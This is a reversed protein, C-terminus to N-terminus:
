SAKSADPLKTSKGDEYAAKREQAIEEFGAEAYEKALKDYLADFEEPKCMTLEDRFEKYMEMLSGSYDVESEIVVSFLADNIAYGEEALALRDEYFKKVEENFNQPLDQPLNNRVIDDVEGANRSEITVCWYDKSNNFGQTYEGSYESVSVPLGDKMNYNEGEVGWQMQFLVDEQTMWEMYMWAAKIQDESAFSSFGIIMGFPNDARWAPTTIDTVEKNVPAIALKADPNAEYFATLFDINSSIYGGFQYSKGNVFNAKATENDTIYYEPNVIGANFKENERKLLAKNAAHGLAPINVDGYMAWDTEDLPFERYGYNQDSGRGTVMEGGAPYEAIGAEKIKAMADMYEEHIVPVHDYGVKELWDMRVFNQFTFASNYFPRLALAFYTEDNMITYPLQGNEEMRAYYTPAVEKFKELDYTALYGDNAWQALKPYDYEMLITPLTESSALLAYDTMVDSRTIPVFKVDINYKDGFEKQIWKTWYNDSVNPVGEVGRDYVPISLEVKEGFAEWLADTEGNTEEESGEADTPAETEGETPAETEAETPAETKDGGETAETKGAKESDSTKTGNNCAAMGFLMTGALALSLVSKLNFKKM